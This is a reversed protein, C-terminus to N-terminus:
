AIRFGVRLSPLPSGPGSCLPDTLMCSYPIDSKNSVSICRIMSPAHAPLVEFM